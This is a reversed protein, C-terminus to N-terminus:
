GKPFLDRFTKDILVNGVVLKDGERLIYIVFARQEGDETLFVRFYAMGKHGDVDSTTTSTVNPDLAKFDEFFPVFRERIIRDISGQGSSDETRKIVAPSLMQKFLDPENHALANIAKEALAEFQDASDIPAPTSEAFSSNLRIVVSLSTFLLVM